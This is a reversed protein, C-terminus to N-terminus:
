VTGSKREGGTPAPARAPPRDHGLFGRSLFFRGFFLGGGAFLRVGALAQFRHDVPKALLRGLELGQGARHLFVADLFDDDVAVGHQQSAEVLDVVEAVIGAPGDALRAEGFFANSGRRRPSADVGAFALLITPVGPQM